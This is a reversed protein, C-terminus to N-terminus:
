AHALLDNWERRSFRGAGPRHRLPGSDHNMDARLSVDEVDGALGHSYWRFWSQRCGRVPQLFQWDMGSEETQTLWCSQAILSHALSEDRNAKHSADACRRPAQAGNALSCKRFHLSEGAQWCAASPLVPPGCASYRKDGGRYMTSPPSRGLTTAASFLARLLPPGSRLLEPVFQLM